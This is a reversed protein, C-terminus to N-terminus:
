IQVSAAPSGLVNSLHGTRSLFQGPINVNTQKFEILWMHEPILPPVLLCAKGSLEDSHGVGSITSPM